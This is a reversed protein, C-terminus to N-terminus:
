NDQLDTNRYTISAALSGFPLAVGLSASSFSQVYDGPSTIAQGLTTDHQFSSFLHWQPVRLHLALSVGASVQGSHTNFFGLYPGAELGVYRMDLTARAFVRNMIAPDRDYGLIFGWAPTYQNSFTFSGIPDYEDKLGVTQGEPGPYFVAIGGRLFLVPSFVPRPAKPEEPPLVVKPTPSEKAPPEEVSLLPIDPTMFILRTRPPAEEAPISQVLPTESAKKQNDLSPPVRDLETIALTFPNDKFNGAYDLYPLAFARINIFFEGGETIQLTGHRTTPFGYSLVPPIYFHFVEGFQPHHEPSSDILYWDGNSRLEGDVRRLEDGNIANGELARYTYTHEMGDPDKTSEALLVSALDPKKKIYLHIGGSDAAEELYIDEITVSLDEQTHGSLACYFLLWLSWLGAKWSHSRM